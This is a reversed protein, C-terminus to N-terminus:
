RPIEHLHVGIQRVRISSVEPGAEEFRTSAEQSINIGIQHVRIFYLELGAKDFRTSAAQSINLAPSM